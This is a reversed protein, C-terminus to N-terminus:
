HLTHEQIRFKPKPNLNELFLKQFKEGHLQLATISGLANKFLKKNTSSSNWQGHSTTQLVM